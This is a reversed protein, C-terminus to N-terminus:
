MTMSLHIFALGGLFSSPSKTIWVYKNATSPSCFSLSGTVKGIKEWYLFSPRTNLTGEISQVLCNTHHFSSLVIFGCPFLHLLVHCFFNKIFSNLSLFFTTFTFFDIYVYTLIATLLLFFILCNTKWDFYSKMLCDQQM